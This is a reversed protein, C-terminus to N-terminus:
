AYQLRVQGSPVGSFSGGIFGGGAFSILDMLYDLLNKEWKGNWLFWFSEDILKRYFGGQGSRDILNQVSSQIAGGILAGVITGVVSGVPGGAATGAGIMSVVISSIFTVILGSVLYGVFYGTSFQVYLHIRFTGRELSGDVKGENMKDIMTNMIQLEDANLVDVFQSFAQEWDSGMNEFVSEGVLAIEDM